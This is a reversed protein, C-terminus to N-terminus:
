FVGINLIAHTRHGLSSFASSLLIKLSPSSESSHIVQCMKDHGGNPKEETVIKLM